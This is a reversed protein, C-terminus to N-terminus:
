RCTCGASCGAAPNPNCTFAAPGSDGCLDDCSAQSASCECPCRPAGPRPATSRTVSLRGGFRRVEALAASLQGPTSQEVRWAAAASEAALVTVVGRDRATVGGVDLPVFYDGRMGRGLAGAVCYDMTGKLRDQSDFIWIRLTFSVPGTDHNEVSVSVAPSDFLLARSPDLWLPSGAPTIVYAPRDAAAASGAVLGVLLACIGILRGGTVM